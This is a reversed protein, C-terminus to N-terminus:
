IQENKSGRSKAHIHNTSSHKELMSPLLMMCQQSLIQAGCARYMLKSNM